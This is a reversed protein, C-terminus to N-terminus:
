SVTKSWCHPAKPLACSGRTIASSSANDSACLAQAIMTDATDSAAGVSMLGDRASHHVSARVAVYYMRKEWKKLAPQNAMFFGEIQNTSTYQDTSRDRTPMRVLEWI